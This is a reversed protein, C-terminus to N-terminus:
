ARRLELKALDILSRTTRLFDLGIIGDIQFGYELAGIEVTFGEVILEGVSLRDIKKEFVYEAGGVGAIRRLKDRPEPVVDIEALKDAGLVTGGSGTDILVNDIELVMGGHVVSVSAFLLQGKVNLKM